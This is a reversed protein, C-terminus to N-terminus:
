FWQLQGVWTESHMGLRWGFSASLWGSVQMELPPAGGSANVAGADRTTTKVQAVSASSCNPGEGDSKEGSGEDGTDSFEICSDNGLQGHKSPHVVGEVHEHGLLNAM